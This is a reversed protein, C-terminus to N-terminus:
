VSKGADSGGKLVTQLIRKPCQWCSNHGVRRLRTYLRYNGIKLLSKLKLFFRFDRPTLKFSAHLVLLGPYYLINSFSFFNNQLFFFFFCQQTAWGPPTNTWAHATLNKRILQWTVYYSLLHNKIYEFHSSIRGVSMDQSPLQYFM